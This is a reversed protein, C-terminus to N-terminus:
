SRTTHTRPYNNWQGTVTHLTRRVHATRVEQNRCDRQQEDEGEGSAAAVVLGVGARCSRRCLGLRGDCADLEVADLAVEGVVGLLEGAGRRLEVREGLLVVCKGLADVVLVLLEQALVAVLHAADEGVRLLAPGLRVRVVLLDFSTTAPVGDSASYSTM